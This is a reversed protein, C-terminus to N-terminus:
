NVLKELMWTNGKRVFTLSCGMGASPSCIMLVRRRANAYSQGYNVNTITGHPLDPRYDPWQVADMVGEITRFNEFDHTKFTFPNAIHRAQFAEDTAFRAYFRYFDCNVNEAMKHTDLGTLRWEGRVKNFLYQKVYDKRLNVWEVTVHRLSTDKEARIGRESDFLITYVDKKVYLPDHHWASRAIPKDVGFVRNPLPFDVRSRQFGANRMFPYIFDDFLGDAAKPPTAISDAEATDAATSDVSALAIAKPDSTREKCGAVVLLILLLSFLYRTMVIPLRAAATGYPCAPDTM